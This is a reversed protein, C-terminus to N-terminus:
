LVQGGTRVQQLGVLMRLMLDKLFVSSHLGNFAYGADVFVFGVEIVALSLNGGSKCATIISCVVQRENVDVSGRHWGGVDGLLRDGTSWLRERSSGPLLRDRKWGESGAEIDGCGVGRRRSTFDVIEEVLLGAVVGVTCGKRGEGRRAAMPDVIVEGGVADAGYLALMAMVTGVAADDEAGRGLVVRAKEGHLLLVAHPVEETQRVADFLTMLADFFLSLLPHAEDGIVVVVVVITTSNSNLSSMLDQGLVRELLGIAAGM